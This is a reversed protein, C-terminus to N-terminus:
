TSIAGQIVWAKGSQDIQKLVAGTYRKTIKLNTTSGNLTVGSAPSITVTGTGYNLIECEFADDFTVTSPITITRSGTVKFLSGNDSNALTKAATVNTIPATAQTATIKGSPTLTAFNSVSWYHQAMYFEGLYKLFVREYPTKISMTTYHGNLIISDSNGTKSKLTLTVDDTILIIECELNDIISESIGIYATSNAGGSISVILCEHDNDNTLYYEEGATLSIYRQHTALLGKNYFSGWNDEELVPFALKSYSWTGNMYTFHEIMSCPVGAFIIAAFILFNSPDSSNGTLYYCQGGYYCYVFNNNTLATTIQNITKDATYVIMTDDYATLVYTGNNYLYCTHGDNQIPYYIKDSSPNSIPITREFDQYFNNNYYYGYVLNDTITVKVPEMYNLETLAPVGNNWYIPQTSSGYTDQTGLYLKSWRKSSTGLAITNTTGPRLDTSQIILSSNAETASANNVIAITGSAPTQLYNFGARSFLIKSTEATTGQLTLTNEFNTNTSFTKAGSITQTTNLFVARSLTTNLTENASGGYSNGNEFVVASSLTRPYVYTDKVSNTLTQIKSSSIPM